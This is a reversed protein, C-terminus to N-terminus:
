SMCVRLYIAIHSLLSIPLGIEQRGHRRNVMDSRMTLSNLLMTKSHMPYINMHRMSTPSLKPATTTNGGMRTTAHFFFYKGSSRGVPTSSRRQM